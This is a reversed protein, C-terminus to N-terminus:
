RLNNNTQSHYRIFVITLLIYFAVQQHATAMFVPIHGTKCGLLTFIGLLIQILLLLLLLRRGYRLQKTMNWKTSILYYLLVVVTLLYASMRHNFQLATNNEIINKWLPKIDMLGQPLFEGNMDPWTTYSLAAKSGALLAGLTIQLLLFFLLYNTWRYSPNNQIFRSKDYYLNELALRFVWALLWAALLLHIALKTPEVLTRDTLGSKVMIWGMIGQVGGLVLIGFYKPSDKLSIYKKYLFFLLPILFISGMSRAWLRHIYEWFFIKKFSSLTMDKNVLEYQPIHKYKEFAIQWETTNSPPVAGMIPKWETISLGSGTLRTIGGLMIQILIMAVGFLLWAAVIKRKKIDTKM